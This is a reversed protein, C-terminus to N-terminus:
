GKLSQFLSHLENKGMLLQPHKSTVHEKCSQALAMQFKLPDFPRRRETKKKKKDFIKL